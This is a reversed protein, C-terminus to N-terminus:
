NGGHSMMSLSAMAGSVSKMGFVSAEKTLFPPRTEISNMVAAFGVPDSESPTKGRVGDGILEMNVYCEFHFLQSVVSSEVLIGLCFPLGTGTEPGTIAQTVQTLFNPENAIDIYTSELPYKPTYIVSFWDSDTIPVSRANDYNLLMTTSHANLNYHAPEEIGIYRGGRSVEAGAWRARVGASIIRYAVQGTSSIAYEANPQSGAMGVTPIVTGITSGAYTTLATYRIAQQNATSTNSAARFPNMVVFGLGAISNTVLTGRSFVKVKRSLITSMDPMCPIKAYDFPDLISLLYQRACTSMAIKPRAAKPRAARNQKPGKGKNKNKKNKKPMKGKQKGSKPNM